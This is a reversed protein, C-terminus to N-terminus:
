IYLRMGEEGSSQHIKECMKLEPRGTASQSASQFCDPLRRKVAERVASCVFTLIFLGGLSLRPWMTKELEVKRM